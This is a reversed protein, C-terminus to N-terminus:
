SNNFNTPLSYKKYKLTILKETYTAIAFQM